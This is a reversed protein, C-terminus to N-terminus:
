YIKHCFKFFLKALCILLSYFALSIYKNILDYKAQLFCNSLSAQYLDVHLIISTPAGCPKTKPSRNNEISM